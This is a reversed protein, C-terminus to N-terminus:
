DRIKFSQDITDEPTCNTFDKKGLNILDKGDPCTALIVQKHLLIQDALWRVKCDCILPNDALWIEVQKRLIPKWNDEELNEIRNSDLYLSVGPPLGSLAESSLTTLYNHSLGIVTLNPAVLDFVGEDIHTIDNYGLFLYALSRLNSFTGPFLFNLYTHELDIVVLSPLDDFAGPPLAGIPNYSLSLRELSASQLVPFTVITNGTLFLDKLVPFKPLDQFPFNVIENGSFDLKNATHFSPKAFNSEVLFLKGKNFIIERFSTRDLAGEALVQVNKNEMVQFKKFSTEPSVTKFVLLMELEDMVGSCDLNMLHDDVIYCFCPFIAHADPCVPDLYPDGLFPQQTLPAARDEYAFIAALYSLVSVYKVISTM